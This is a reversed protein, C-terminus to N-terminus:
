LSDAKECKITDAWLNNPPDYSRQLCNNIQPSKYKETTILWGIFAVQHYHHHKKKQLHLTLTEPLKLVETPNPGPIERLSCQFYDHKSDQRGDSKGM